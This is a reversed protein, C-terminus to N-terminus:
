LKLGLLAIISKAKNYPRELKLTDDDLRRGAMRARQTGSWCEGKGDDKWGQEAGGGKM